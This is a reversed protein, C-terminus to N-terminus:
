AFLSPIVHGWWVRKVIGDVKVRDVAVDPAATGMRLPGVHDAREAPDRGGDHQMGNFRLGIADTLWQRQGDVEREGM